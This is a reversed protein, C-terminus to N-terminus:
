EPRCPTKGGLRAPLKRAVCVVEDGYGLSAQLWRFPWMGGGAVVMALRYAHEFWPSRSRGSHSVVSEVRSFQITADRNVGLGTRLLALFWGSFSEHTALRELVLGAVEVAKALTQQSFYTLHYPEYSTWGSLCAEWCARNPVAIYAIGNPLLLREVERLFEVPREVHELVHNLVVVDFQGTGTIDRLTGCYVPVGYKMEAQRCIAPSLDCGRVEFGHERAAELFSGSGVGIELLKKGPLACSTLRALTRRNNWAEFKEIWFSSKRAGYCEGFWEEEM